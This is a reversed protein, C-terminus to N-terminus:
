PPPPPPPPPPTTTTTTATTGSTSLTAGVKVYCRFHDKWVPYQTNRGMAGEDWKPRRGDGTLNVGDTPKTYRMEYRLMNAGPYCDSGSSAQLLSGFDVDACRNKMAIAYCAPDDLCLQVMSDYSLDRTRQVHYAMPGGICATGAGADTMAAIWTTTSTTPVPAPQRLM